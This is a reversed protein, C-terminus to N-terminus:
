PSGDPMHATANARCAEAINILQQAVRTWTFAGRVLQAGRRSLREALPPYQLPKLITIGLDMPDLPDAFLGNLGFRLTRFLGGHVTVVTPTGCAMAEVAAMGFPEYRSSSVFVDAARYLDAIEPDPVFGSFVVRPSLGLQDVLARCDGLISEEIPRLQEGGIALQLRAEPCRRAVEAFARILLDYGKNRAIRGLSLVVKGDFGLRKRLLERTSAGVPYFRTDDYGSPIMTLRAEAVDYYQRLLGLQEPTTAVVVDAHAFIEQEARNRECFNYSQEFSALDQPFDAQMQRQKWAGLSHPTHLHPLALRACLQHGAIGADWYHSNLFRYRLEEERMRTFARECWERLSRHLYEKPIFNPGGCPVRLIRVGPQVVEVATQKEFQRTWVDVEYGLQALKKSLEIVYVVQGGTDAAGLPPAASVYGHTSVMAIRPPTSGLASGSRPSFNM